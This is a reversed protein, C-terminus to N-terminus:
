ASGTKRVGQVKVKPANTKPAAKVGPDKKVVPQKVKEGEAKVNVKEDETKEEATLLGSKHLLNYWSFLKKLDSTHVREEDYEPMVESMYKRLAKEDASKTDICTAGKEKDFIKQLVDKLPMDEGTTYISIDTLASIRQSNFAQTRKGDVLSEVVVGNKAQAVVKYLGPMGAISIVNSIDM